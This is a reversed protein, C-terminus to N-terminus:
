TFIMHEHWAMDLCCGGLCGRDEGIVGLVRGIMGIVM